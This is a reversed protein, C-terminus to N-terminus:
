RPKSSPSSTEDSKLPSEREEMTSAGMVKTTPPLQTLTIEQYSLSHPYEQRTRSRILRIDALPSYTRYCSDYSPPVPTEGDLRPRGVASWRCVDFSPTSGHGFKRNAIKREVVTADEHADGEVDREVVAADHVVGADAFGQGGDLVSQTVARAEDKRRMQATGFALCIWLQTEFGDGLTEAHHEVLFQRAAFVDAEAGLADPGFGFFHRELELFALSQQKFIEAKVGFFFLIILINGLLECLKGLEVDIVGEAGGM